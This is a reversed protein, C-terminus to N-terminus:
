FLGARGLSEQEPLVFWGPCVPSLIVGTMCDQSALIRAGALLFRGRTLRQGGPGQSQGGGWGRLLFTCLGWPDSENDRRGPTPPLM